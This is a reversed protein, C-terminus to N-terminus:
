IEKPEARKLKTWQEAHEAKVATIRDRIAARIFETANAFGEIKMAREVDLRMDKSWQFNFQEWGPSIKPVRM